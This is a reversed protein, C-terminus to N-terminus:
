RNAPRSTSSPLGHPLPRVASHIFEGGVFVSTGDTSGEVALVPHDPAPAFSGDLAGTNADMAVLYPRAMVGYDSFDGGVALRGGALDDVGARRIHLKGPPDSLRRRQRPCWPPSRARSSPVAALKQPNDKKPVIHFTGGIVIRGADLVAM